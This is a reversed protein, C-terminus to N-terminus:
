RLSGAMAAERRAPSDAYQTLVALLGTLVAVTLLWSLSTHLGYRDAVWGFVPTALGGISAGIGYTVGSAVGLHNPLFDQAM